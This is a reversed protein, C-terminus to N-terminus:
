WMKPQPPLKPQPQQSWRRSLIGSGSAARSMTRARCMGLSRGFRRRIVLNWIMSAWLSRQERSGQAHHTRGGRSLVGVTTWRWASRFAAFSSLARATCARAKARSRMDASWRPTPRTRPLPTSRRLPTRHRAACNTFLACFLPRKHGAGIRQGACWVAPCLGGPWCWGDDDDDDDDDGSAAVRHPLAEM